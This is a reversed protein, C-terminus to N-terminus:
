YLENSYTYIANTIGFGVGYSIALMVTNTYPEATILLVTMCMIYLIFSYFISNKRGIKPNEVVYYMATTFPIASITVILLGLLTDSTTSELIIPTLFISGLTIAGFMLWIINILVTQRGHRTYLIKMGSWFTIEKPATYEQM